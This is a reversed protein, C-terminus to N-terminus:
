GGPQDPGSFWQWNGRGRAKARYMAADAAQLLGNADQADLPYLGVGVSAGPQLEAPCGDFAASLAALVKQAVTKAMDVGPLDTLAIVFEDGGIRSVIDSARVCKLLRAAVEKLVRDGAEHGLSDNIQKFRDLDIYLAAVLTANREARHLALSLAHQLLHRNPLGTLPDHDARKKLEVNAEELAANARVLEASREEVLRELSTRYAMLEDDRRRRETIDRGVAVLVLEQHITTVTAAVEVARIEGNRLGLHAQFGICGGTTVVAHVFQKREELNPWIGLEVATRGIVEERQWGTLAQFAPNVDIFRSDEMRSITVYDPSAYFVGRYIELDNDPAQGPPGPVNNAPPNM